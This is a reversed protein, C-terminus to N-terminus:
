CWCASTRSSRSTEPTGAWAKSSSGRSTARSRRRPSSASAPTTLAGGQGSRLVSAGDKIRRAHTGHGPEPACCGAPQASRGGRMVPWRLILTSVSANGTITGSVSRKWWRRTSTTREYSTCGPHICINLGAAPHRRGVGPVAQHCARGDLRQRRGPAAAAAELRALPSGRCDDHPPGARQVWHRGRSCRSHARRSWWRASSTACMTRVLRAGAAGTSTAGRSTPSTSPQLHPHRGGELTQM